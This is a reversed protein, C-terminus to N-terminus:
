RVRRAMRSVRAEPTDPEPEDLADALPPREGSASAAEPAADARITDWDHSTVIAELHEIRRQLRATDQPAGAPIARVDLEEDLLARLREESAEAGMLEQTRREIWGAGNKKGFTGAAQFALGLGWGAIPYFAWFHSPSTFLNLAILFSNVLVFALLNRYFAAERKAQKLAAAETM